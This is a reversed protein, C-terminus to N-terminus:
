RSSPESPNPNHAPTRTTTAENLEELNFVVKNTRRNLRVTAGYIKGAEFDTVFATSGHGVSLGDMRVEGEVEVHHKGSALRVESPYGSWASRTLSDNDVRRFRTKCTMGFPSPNSWLPSRQGVLVAVPANDPPPVYTGPAACAGLLAAALLCHTHSRSRESGIRKRPQTM